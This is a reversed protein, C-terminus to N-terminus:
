EHNQVGLLAVDELAKTTWSEIRKMWAARERASSPHQDKIRVMLDEVGELYFRYSANLLVIPTAHVEQLKGAPDEINLTSPVIGNRLYEAIPKWLISYEHLRLDIGATINGLETRVQPMLDILAKVFSAGNGGVAEEAVIFNDFDLGLLARVVACQRCDTDKILDWWGEAKGQAKPRAFAGSSLPGRRRIEGEVLGLVKPHAKLWGAWGTHRSKYDAMARGWGPLDSSAVLCAAHAWYEILLRREYVLADL